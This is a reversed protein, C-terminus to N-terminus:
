RACRAGSHSASRRSAIAESVLQADIEPKDIELIIFVERQTRKPHRRRRDGAGKRGIIIGPRV